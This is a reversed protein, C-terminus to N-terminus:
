SETGEPRTHPAMAPRKFDQIVGRHWEVVGRMATAAAQVIMLDCQVLGHWFVADAAAENRQCRVRDLLEAEDDHGISKLFAVADDIKDESIM